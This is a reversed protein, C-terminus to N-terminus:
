QVELVALLIAVSLFIVDEDFDCWSEEMQCLKVIVHDALVRVSTETRKLMEKSVEQGVVKRWVSGHCMQLYVEVQCSYLYAQEVTLDSLIRPFSYDSECQYNGLVIVMSNLAKRVLSLSGVSGCLDLLANDFNYFHLIQSDQPKGGLEEM